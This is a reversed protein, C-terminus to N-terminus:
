LWYRQSLTEKNEDVVVQLEAFHTDPPIVQTTYMAPRKNPSM